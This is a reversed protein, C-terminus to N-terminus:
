KIRQGNALISGDENVEIKSVLTDPGEGPRAFLGLMMRAGMAQDEPLLGMSVLTDLLTNGGTLMLNATGSPLPMGMENNFAFDGDGTLEAGALKLQISNIDLAEITGPPAAELNEAYEPNTFDETVIVSGGMDVVLTAPERPLQGAPDFMSWLMDDIELGVVSLLLSFGQIEESPIMPIAFRGSSEEMRFTLPPFPIASGGVTLTMGRNVGGYDIGADDMSIDFAGSELAAAVQVAGDPGDFNMEYTSPGFTSKAVQHMGSQIMQAASMSMDIKGITGSSIQQVDTVAFAFTGSGEDPDSFQMDVDLAAVSADSEFTRVDGNSLTLWGTADSVTMDLVVPMDPPVDDGEITLDSVKLMPYAFDYRMSAADGSVIMRAGPQSLLFGIRGSKGDPDTVEMRFPLTDNMTVAVSGDNQEEFIIEGLDMSVSGEPVSFGAVLGSVTLRGATQDESATSIEAGQSELLTKWDSWVQESTLDALAPTALLSIVTATTLFRSFTMNDIRHLLTSPAVM